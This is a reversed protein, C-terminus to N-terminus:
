PEEGLLTVISQSVSHSFSHIFGFQFLVRGYVVQSAPFFTSIAPALRRERWGKCSNELSLVKKGVAHDGM